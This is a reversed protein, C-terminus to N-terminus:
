EKYLLYKKRLTKYQELEEQWSLRIQDESMGREIQARLSDTGALKVFFSNFFNPKDKSKNYFDILYAVTFRTQEVKRLDIGYCKKGEHLPKPAASNAKPVFYFASTDSHFPSGIQLFPASTGRGVSVQTGEFLCLSPYLVIALSDKLNPSPALPLCYPMSHTYNACPIVILKCMKKDKLWSEGNAMLALEGVTLGHVIPIPYIGVFSTKEKRLVPGDVYYGNPNPRDLLLFLKFNEACAEMLYHMTSIYTYFRAGVDQVDFVIIDIDSLMAATPKLTKGYLSVIPVGTKSDKGDMVKEGAGLEGRFGHEPAFIKVVNVKLAKFTDLLHTEGVMSTHNVALAVRKNKLMYLYKDMQEAGVRVTNLNKKQDKEPKIYCGFLTFFLAIIYLMLFLPRDQYMKFILAKIRLIGLFLCM